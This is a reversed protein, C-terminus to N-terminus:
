ADATETPPEPAALMVGMGTLLRHAGERVQSPKTADDYVGRWFEQRWAHYMAPTAFGLKKFHIQEYGVTLDPDRHRLESERAWDDLKSGERKRRKKAKASPAYDEVLAQKVFGAPNKPTREAALEIASRVKEDPYGEPLARLIERITQDEFGEDRAFKAAADHQQKEQAEHQAKVKLVRGSEGARDPEQAEDDVRAPRDGARGLPWSDGKEEEPVWEALVEFNVRYFNGRQGDPTYNAEVVLVGAEELVRRVNRVTKPDIGGCRRAISSVKPYVLDGPKAFSLLMVLVLKQMSPSVGEVPPPVCRDRIMMATAADM